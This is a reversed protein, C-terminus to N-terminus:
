YKLGTIQEFELMTIWHKSVAVRMKPESWLGTKFYRLLTTYKPSHATGDPEGDLSMAMLMPEDDDFSIDTMLSIYDLKSNIESEKKENSSLESIFFSFVGNSFEQEIIKYNPITSILMEDEDHITLYSYQWKLLTEYVDKDNTSYGENSKNVLISPGNLISIKHKM